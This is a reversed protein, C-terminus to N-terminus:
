EASDISLTAATVHSPDTRAPVTFLLQLDLIRQDFFEPTIRLHVLDLMKM